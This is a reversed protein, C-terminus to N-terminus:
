LLRYLIDLMWSLSVLSTERPLSCRFVMLWQWCFWTCDLNPFSDLRVRQRVTKEGSRRGADNNASAYTVLTRLIQEASEHLFQSEELELRHTVDSFFAVCFLYSKQPSAAISTLLVTSRTQRAPLM